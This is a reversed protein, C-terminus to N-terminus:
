PSTAGVTVSQGESLVPHHCALFHGESVQRMEPETTRCEETAYPCRTHFRCGSPPSIPSPLEGALDDSEAVRAGPIAAM